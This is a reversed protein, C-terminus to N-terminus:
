IMVEHKVYETRKASSARFINVCMTHDKIHTKDAHYLMFTNYSNKDGNKTVSNGNSFSSATSQSWRDCYLSAVQVDLRQKVWTQENIICM